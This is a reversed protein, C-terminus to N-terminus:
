LTASQIFCCKRMLFFLYCWLKLISKVAFGANVLSQVFDMLQIKAWLAIDTKSPHRWPAGIRLVDEPIKGNQADVAFKELLLLAKDMAPNVM